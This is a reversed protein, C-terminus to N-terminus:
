TVVGMHPHPGAAARKDVELRRREARGIVPAGQKRDIAALYAFGQALLRVRKGIGHEVDIDGRDVM